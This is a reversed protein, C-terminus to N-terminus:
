PSCAAKHPDNLSQIWWGLTHRDSASLATGMDNMAASFSM